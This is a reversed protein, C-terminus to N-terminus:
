AQTPTIKKAAENVVIIWYPSFQLVRGNSLQVVQTDDSYIKIIIGMRNSPIEDDEIGVRIKVLDGVNM